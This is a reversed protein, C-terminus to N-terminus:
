DRYELAEGNPLLRNTQTKAYRAEVLLFCSKKERNTGRMAKLLPAPSNRLRTCKRIDTSQHPTTVTPYLLVLNGSSVELNQTDVCLFEGSRTRHTVHM